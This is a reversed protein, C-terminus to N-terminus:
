VQLLGPQNEGLFSIAHSNHSEVPSYKWTPSYFIARIKLILILFKEIKLAQSSVYKDLEM